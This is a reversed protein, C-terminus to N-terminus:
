AKLLGLCCRKHTKRANRKVRKGCKECRCVNVAGQKMLPFSDNLTQSDEYLQKRRCIVADRIKTIYAKGYAALIEDGPAINRTAVLNMVQKLRRSCSYKCNNPYHSASTNAFIGLHSGHYQMVFVQDKSWQYLEHSLETNAVTDIRDTPVLSGFTTTVLGKRFFGAAFLGRGREGIRIQLKAVGDAAQFLVAGTAEGKALLQSASAKAKRM